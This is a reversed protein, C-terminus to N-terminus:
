KPLIASLVLLIFARVLSWWASSKSGKLTLRYILYGGKFDESLSVRLKYTDYHQYIDSRDNYSDLDVRGRRLLKFTQTGKRKGSNLGNAEAM